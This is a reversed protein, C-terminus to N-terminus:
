LYPGSTDFRCEELRVLAQSLLAPDLSSLDVKSGCEAVELRKLQSRGDVDLVATLLNELIKLGNMNMKNLVWFIKIEPVIHVRSSQLFKEYNDRDVVVVLRARSWFKPKEIVSNWLRSTLLTKFSLKWYDM